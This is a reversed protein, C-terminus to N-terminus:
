VSVIWFTVTGAPLRSSNDPFAVPSRQCNSRNPTATILNHIPTSGMQCGPPFLRTLAAARRLDRGQMAKLRRVAMQLDLAGLEEIYGIVPVVQDLGDGDLGVDM